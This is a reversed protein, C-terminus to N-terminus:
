SAEAAAPLASHRACGPDDNVAASPKKWSRRISTKRCSSTKERHRAHQGHTGHCRTRLFSRGPREGVRVIALCPDIGKARLDETLPTLQAEMKAVVEKGLMQQAM